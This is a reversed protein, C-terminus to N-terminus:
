TATTYVQPEDSDSRVHVIFIHTSDFRIHAMCALARGDVNIGCSTIIAAPVTSSSDSLELREMHKLHFTFLRHAVHGQDFMGLATLGHHAYVQEVGCDTERDVAHAIRLCAPEREYLAGALWISM